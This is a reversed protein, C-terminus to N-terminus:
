DVTKDPVLPQFEQETMPEYGEWRAKMEILVRQSSPAPQPNVRIVSLNCETSHIIAKALVKRLYRPAWGIQSEDETEIKVAHRDVLNTPAPKLYLIEDPKLTDIREQAGNVYRWGHLFFRCTYKGDSGKQLKPFVEFVDTVKRGGNVSLIEIPDADEPLGLNKLYNLRDPRRPAIVRNKFLPFLEPSWYAFEMSPFIPLPTFGAESEARKAGEIYRFVFKPLDVDADLRGVPFWLRNVRNQWSLYM